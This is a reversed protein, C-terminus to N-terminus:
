INHKKPIFSQLLEYILLFVLCLDSPSCNGLFLTEAFRENFLFFYFYGTFEELDHFPHLFSCHPRNTPELESFKDM